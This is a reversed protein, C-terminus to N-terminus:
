GPLKVINALPLEEEIITKIRGWDGGALGAGMGYPLYIPYGICEQWMRLQILGLRVAEYDTYCKGKARGYNRQGALNCVWLSDSVQILQIDGTELKKAQVALQYETFVKPYKRRIQLALGAGMVGQLNVQHVICGTTIDLINGQVEIM